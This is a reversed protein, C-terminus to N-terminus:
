QHPTNGKALSRDVTSKPLPPFTSQSALHPAPPNRSTRLEKCADAYSLNAVTKLKLIEIERQYRPCINENASHSGGCAIAFWQRPLSRQEIQLPSCLYLSHLSSGWFSGVASATVRRILFDAWSVLSFSFYEL